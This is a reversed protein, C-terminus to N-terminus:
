DHYWDIGLGGNARVAMVLSCWLADFSRITMGAHKYTWSYGHCKPHKHPLSELRGNHCQHFTGASLSAFRGWM